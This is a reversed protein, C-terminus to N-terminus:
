SPSALAADFPEGLWAQRINPESESGPGLDDIRLGAPPEEGPFHARVPAPPTAASDFAVEPAKTFTEPTAENAASEDM